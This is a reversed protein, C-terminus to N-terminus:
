LYRFRFVGRITRHLEEGISPASLVSEAVDPPVGEYAATKGSSYEVHLAMAEADYGISAIHSSYVQRMEPPPM